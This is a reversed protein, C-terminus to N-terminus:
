CGAPREVANVPLYSSIKDNFELPINGSRAEGPPVCFFAGKWNPDVYFKLYVNPFANAAWSSISDNPSEACNQYRVNAMRQIGGGNWEYKCGSQNTDKWVCVSNPGCEAAKATHNGVSNLTGTALVIAAILIWTRRM